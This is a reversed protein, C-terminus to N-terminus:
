EGALKALAAEVDALTGIPVLLHYRYDGAPVAGDAPHVRFVCNWKVVKEVPFRFRGYGPGTSGPPSPEPAIIGMAYAGDATSFAVPDRQEGPGDSLPELKKTAPNFHWFRAFEPPLYGTLAEFQVDAHAEGAPVTWTVAYDLVNPLGPLGITVQKALRHASLPATNEAPQGGSKEGPRLWFAMQTLTRLVNGAAHIELLRSTTVPGPGDARAGAETPNFTESNRTRTLDFGAASQLQRGHDWSDIFEQGRWTVSHIAGALRATTTVVIESGGFPARIVADGDAEAARAATTIVFTLLPFILHRKLM